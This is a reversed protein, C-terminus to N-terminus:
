SFPCRKRGDWRLGHLNSEWSWHISILTALFLSRSKSGTTISYYHLHYHVPCIKGQSSSIALLSAGPLFTVHSVVCPLTAWKKLHQQIKSPLHLLFTTSYTWHLLTHVCKWLPIFFKLSAWRMNHTLWGRTEWTPPLDQFTYLCM